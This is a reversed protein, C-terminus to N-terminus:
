GFRGLGDGPLTVLPSGKAARSAFAEARAASSSDELNGVRSWNERRWSLPCFNSKSAPGDLGCCGFSRDWLTASRSASSANWTFGEGVAGAGGLWLCDMSRLLAFGETMDGGSLDAVAGGCGSTLRAEAMMELVGSSCASEAGMGWSGRLGPMTEIPVIVDGSRSWPGWNWILRNGGGSRWRAALTGRDGTAAWCGEDRPSPRAADRVGDSCPM